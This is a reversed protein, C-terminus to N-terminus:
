LTGLAKISVQLGVQAFYQPLVIRSGFCTGLTSTNGYQSHGLQHLLTPQGLSISLTVKTSSYQQLSISLM